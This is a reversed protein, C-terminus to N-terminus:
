QAVRAGITVRRLAERSVVSRAKLPQAPEEDISANRGHFGIRIKVSTKKAGPAVLRAGSERPGEM